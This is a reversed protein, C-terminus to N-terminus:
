EISENIAVSLFSIYNLCWHRLVFTTLPSLVVQGGSYFQKVSGLQKENMKEELSNMKRLHRQRLQGKTHVTAHRIQRLHEYTYLFDELKYGKPNTHEKLLPIRNMIDSPISNEGWRVMKKIQDETKDVEQEILVEEYIDEMLGDLTAVTTILYDKALKVSLKREYQEILQKKTFITSVDTTLRFDGPINATTDLALKSSKAHYYTASKDCANLLLATQNYNDMLVEFYEHLINSVREKLSM